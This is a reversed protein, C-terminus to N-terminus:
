GPRSAAGAQRSANLESEAELWFSVGDCVPRGAGEWKQYARLRIAEEPPVGGHSSPHEHGDTEPVHAPLSPFTAAASKRSHKSM